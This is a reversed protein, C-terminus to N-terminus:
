SLTVTCLELLYSHCWLLVSSPPLCLWTLGNETDWKKHKERPFPSSCLFIFAKNLVDQFNAYLSDQIQVATTLSLHSSPESTVCPLVSSLFVSRQQTWHEEGNEAEELQKRYQLLQTLATRVTGERCWSNGFRWKRSFQMMLAKKVKYKKLKKEKHKGKAAGLTAKAWGELCGDLNHTFDSIEQEAPPPSFLMGLM